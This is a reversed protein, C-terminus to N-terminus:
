PKESGNRCKEAHATNDGFELSQLKLNVIWIKLKDCMKLKVSSQTNHLSLTVFQSKYCAATTECMVTLQVGSCQLRWVTLKPFSNYSCSESKCDHEFKSWNKEEFTLLNSHEENMHCNNVQETNTGTQLFFSNTISDKQRSCEVFILHLQRKEIEKTCKIRDKFFFFLM